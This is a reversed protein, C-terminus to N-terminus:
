MMPMAARQLDLIQKQIREIEQSAEAAPMSAAMATPILQEFVQTPVSKPEAKFEAVSPQNALFKEFGEQIGMSIAATSGADPVRNNRIDVGTSFILDSIDELLQAAGTPILGATKLTEILEDIRKAIDNIIGIQKAVPWKEIMDRRENFDLVALQDLEQQTPSIPVLGMPTTPMPAIPMPEQLAFIDQPKMPSPAILKGVGGLIESGVQKLAQGIPKGQAINSVLSTGTKLLTPALSAILPGLFAM